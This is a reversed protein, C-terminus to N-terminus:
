RRGGHGGGFNFGHDRDHGGGFFGFSFDFSPRSYYAPAPYYYTPAAYYTPPYMVPPAYFVRPAYYTQPYYGSPYSYALAYYTTVSPVYAPQYYVPGPVYTRAPVVSIGLGVSVHDAKAPQAIFASGAIVGLVALTKFMSIMASEKTFEASDM